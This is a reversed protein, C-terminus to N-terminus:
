GPSRATGPLLEFDVQSTSMSKGPEVVELTTIFGKPDVKLRVHAGADPLQVPHFRSVNLWAGGIKCSGHDNSAKSSAARDDETQDGSATRYVRSCGRPFTYADGRHDDSRWEGDDRSTRGVIM